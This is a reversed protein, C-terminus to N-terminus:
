RIESGNKVQSVYAPSIRSVSVPSVQGSQGSQGSQRFGPQGSLGAFYEVLRATVAKQGEPNLHIPDFFLEYRGSFEPNLDLYDVLPSSGALLRFYSVMRAYAEPESENLMKAVPTNVLVVRVGRSEIYSLTKEFDARLAGDFCIRRQTGSDIQRKLALTDLTGVKFNKWNGLWGRVSSNLLADSYRTTCLLKHKWYDEPSACSRVYSDMEPTDIFPYFLTYSNASLGSGNFMFQDVGYLVYELSDSYPSDMYQRVMPYRDTVNVGERCYKSVGLGTERELESKDVSLMLHSHGVLLIQSRRNLGFYRDLGTNLVKGIARDAVIFASALLLISLLRKM